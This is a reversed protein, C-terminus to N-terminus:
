NGTYQSRKSQDEYRHRLETEELYSWTARFQNRKKYAEKASGGYRETYKETREGDVTSDKKAKGGIKIARETRKDSIYGPRNEPNTWLALDVEPCQLFKVWHEEFNKLRALEDKLALLMSEQAPRDGAFFQASAESPQTILFDGFKTIALQRLSPVGDSTKFSM